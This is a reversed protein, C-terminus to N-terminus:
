NKKLRPSDPNRFLHWSQPPLRGQRNSSVEMVMFRQGKSIDFQGEFRKCLAGADLSSTFFVCNPLTAHWFSVEPIADLFDQVQKRIAFASDFIILYSKNM